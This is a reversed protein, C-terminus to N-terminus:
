GPRAQTGDRLVGIRAVKRVPASLQKFITGRGFFETMIHGGPSQRKIEKYQFEPLGTPNRAAQVADARIDALLHGLAQRDAAILGLDVDKWKSFKQLPRHLRISYAVIDESPLQPSAREGHERLVADAKTQVDEFAALNAMPRAEQQQKLKAMSSALAAFESRSVFEEPPM